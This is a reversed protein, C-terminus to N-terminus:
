RALRWVVGLGTGALPPLDLSGTVAQYVADLDDERHRRLRVQGHDISEDPRAPRTDAM